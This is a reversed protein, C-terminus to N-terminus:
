DLRPADSTAERQFAKRFATSLDVSETSTDFWKKVAGGRKILSALLNGRPSEEPGPRIPALFELVRDALEEKESITEALSRVDSPRVWTGAETPVWRMAVWGLDKLSPDLTADWLDLLAAHRADDGGLGTWWAELSAGDVPVSEAKLFPAFGLWDLTSKTGRGLLETALVPRLFLLDARRDPQSDFRDGLPKPLRAVKSPELFRLAGKVYCPLFAVDALLRTLREKWGARCLEAAMPGSGEEPKQLVEMLVLTQRYSDAERLQRSGVWRLYNALLAAIGDVIAKQWPNTSLDTLGTRSQNLFWDAQVHMRFPVTVQTPLTSFVRGASPPKPNGADDYPIVGVVERPRSAARIDDETEDAILRKELFARVGELPPTYSAALVRWSRARDGLSATVFESGDERAVRLVYETDGIRLRELGSRALLALVTGDHDLLHQIDDSPPCEGRAGSMEFRTTFGPDPAPVTTDWIPLVAGIVQKILQGHGGVKFPVEFHFQWGWGSVSIREYKQFVSKFGIGMFGVTAARKTSQFLKCLATVSKADLPDSGDHQFSFGKDRPRLSIRKAKADIANQMLEFVYTWEEDVSNAFAKLSAQGDPTSYFAHNQEYLGRVVRENESIPQIM